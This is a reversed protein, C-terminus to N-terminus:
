LESSSSDRAKIRSPFSPQLFRPKVCLNLIALSRELVASTRKFTKNAVSQDGQLQISSSPFPFKNQKIYM